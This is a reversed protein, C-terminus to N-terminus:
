CGSFGSFFLPSPADSPPLAGPSCPNLHSLQTLNTLISPEFRPSWVLFVSCCLFKGSAIRPRQCSLWVLTGLLACHTCVFISISQVPVSYEQWWVACFSSLFCFLLSRALRQKREDRGNRNWVRPMAAQQWRATFRWSRIRHPNSLLFARPPLCRQGRATDQRREGTKSEKSSKRKWPKRSPDVISSKARPEHFPRSHRRKPETPTFGM